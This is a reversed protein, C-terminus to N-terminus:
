QERRVQVGVVALRHDSATSDSMVVTGTSRLSQSWIWLYDWRTLPLGVRRITASLEPNSGAFPDVFGTRTLDQLLPSDPVNHFTGGLIARGLQGDYDNQVHVSITDLIAELQQRQNSEQQEISEGEILLGLSTNYITIFANPQDSIQVRQLGTQQDISPLLVGDDFVIPVRSLIALGQLGENTAYFRTDMGLERALWLSEDVGYSTLRGREVEQLLMVDAGGGRITNAIAPMNFEYFESYGGHINFTGIRLESENTTTLIAPPRSLFAGVVAAAVVFVFGALTHLAPGNRWPIRNTAQIMPMLAFLVALLIVGLGLGRFGRLLPLVISNLQDFPAALPRVFAYEYTFLDAGVFLVFILTGIVLCLASLNLGRPAKPRVIWWWVLSIGLQAITLAVAGSPFSGLGAPLSIRTLRTGVVVLLVLGILWIWGRTGAEFPAIMNRATQRVWPILPLATAVILLPVFTTYDADARGAVANPTALLSLQLFLMAGLGIGGWFTLIGNNPDIDGAAMATTRRGRLGNVLALVVFIGVLIFLIHIGATQTVYLMGRTTQLSWSPDLTNGWARLIQDGVFGLVFFYPVQTGRNRILLALYFLGGGVALEAGLLQSVVSGDGGMLIRGVALVLAAPIMLVHIRGLFLALLPLAIVLGLWAIDATVAGPQVFGPLNPDIDFGNVTLQSVLSASATRSYIEGILFRLASVFLLGALGVETLPLLPAAAQLRKFM